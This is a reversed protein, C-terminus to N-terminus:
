RQGTGALYEGGELAPTQFVAERRLSGLLGGNSVLDGGHGWVLLSFQHLLEWDRATPLGFRPFAAFVPSKQLSARFADRASPFTKLHDELQPLAEPWFFLMRVDLLWPM